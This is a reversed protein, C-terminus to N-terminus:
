PVKAYIEEIKEQSENKIFAIMHDIQRNVDDDSLTMKKHVQFDTFGLLNQIFDYKLFDYQVILM